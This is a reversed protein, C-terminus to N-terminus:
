IMELIIKKNDATKIITNDNIKYEIEVFPNELSNDINLDDNNLQISADNLYELAKVISSKGFGNNAVLINARNALLLDNFTVEKEEIGKINKIKIRKIGNLSM